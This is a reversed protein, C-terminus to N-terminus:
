GPWCGHEGQGGHGNAGRGVGLAFSGVSGSELRMHAIRARWPSLLGAGSEVPAKGHKNSTECQFCFGFLIRNIRLLGLRLRRNWQLIQEPHQVAGV